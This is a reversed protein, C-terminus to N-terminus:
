DYRVQEVDVLRREFGLAGSWAVSVRLLFVERSRLRESNPIGWDEHGIDVGIGVGIDIMGDDGMYRESDLWNEDESKNENENENEIGKGKEQGSEFKSPTFKSKMAAQATERWIAM